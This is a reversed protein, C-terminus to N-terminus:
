SRSSPSWPRAPRSSPRSSRRAKFIKGWPLAGVVMSVCAGLDGKLCNMIDNIGLFEMLIQGGAELIVDLM